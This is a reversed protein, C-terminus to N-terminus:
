IHIVTMHSSRTPPPGPLPVLVWGLPMFQSKPVWERTRSEYLHLPETRDWSPIGSNTSEGLFSERGESSHTTAPFPPLCPLLLLPPLPVLHTHLISFLKSIFLILIDWEERVSETREYLRMHSRWIMKNLDAKTSLNRLHSRHNLLLITTFFAISGTVM